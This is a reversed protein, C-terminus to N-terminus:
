TVGGSVVTLCGKCFIPSTAAPVRSSSISPRVSYTASITISGSSTTRREVERRVAQCPRVKHCKEHVAEGCYFVNWRSSFTSTRSFIKRGALRKRCKQLGPWEPKSYLNRSSNYLLRKGPHGSDLRVM